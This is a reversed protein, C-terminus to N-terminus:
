YETTITTVTYTPDDQQETTTYTLTNLIPDYEKGNLTEKKDVAIEWVEDNNKKKRIM